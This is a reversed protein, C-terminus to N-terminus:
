ILSIKPLSLQRQCPKKQLKQIDRTKIKPDTSKCPATSPLMLFKGWSTQLHSPEQEPQWLNVGMGGLPLQAAKGLAGAAPPHLAMYINVRWWGAQSLSQGM